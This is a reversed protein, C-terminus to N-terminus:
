VLVSDHIFLYDDAPVTRFAHIYAGTDYGSYPTQIVDLGFPWSQAKAQELFAISEPCKSGTDVLLVNHGSTGHQELSELLGPLFTKGNNTAVVILAV